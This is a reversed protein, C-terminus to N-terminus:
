HENDSDTRKKQVHWVLLSLKMESFSTVASFFDHLRERESRHPTLGRCLTVYQDQHMTITM